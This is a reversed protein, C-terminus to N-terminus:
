FDRVYVGGNSETIGRQELNGTSCVMRYARGATKKYKTGTWMSFNAWNFLNSDFFDSMTDGYDCFLIFEDNNFMRWDSFGAVTAGTITTLTDTWTGNGTRNFYVEIRLYYDRMVDDPFALLKTTAVGDKDFYNGAGDTYGGTRGVKRRNNGFENNSALTYHDLLLSGDYSGNQFNWGDDNTQIVDEQGTMPKVFNVSNPVEGIFTNKTNTITTVVVPSGDAYQITFNKTDEPKSGEISVGNMTNNSDGITIVKLNATDTTLTGVASFDSDYCELALNEGAPTDTATPDDQFTTTVPDGGSSPVIWEDGVKSGVSVGETDKVPIDLTGNCSVTTFLTGNIYITAVEAAPPTIGSMPIICKNYSQKVNFSVEIYGGTLRDSTVDELYNWTTEISFRLEDAYLQSAVQKWYSLYDVSILKMDSKVENSNVLIFDGERNRLQEVQSLFVVRFTFSEMGLQYVSPMDELWMIPYRYPAEQDHLVTDFDQGNGFNKLQEHAEAFQKNLAIIKNYNLM